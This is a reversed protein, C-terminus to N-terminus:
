HRTMSAAAMATDRARKGTEIYTKFRMLDEDLQHKPDRGLLRAVTHGLLNAPPRYSMRVHIRTGGYPTEEFQVTGTSHVVSDDSTRWAILENPIDATIEADWEVAVGAPGDVKWHYHTDDIKRVERVHSMFQPFNELNRWCSYTEDLDAYVHITKQVLVGDSQDARLGLLRSLPTNAVSRSLLAAGLAAMGIGGVSRRALGTALLGLGTMGALLRPAPAWNEQLYEFRPASRYHQGQLAPTSGPERHVRLENVVTRVGRVRNVRSLVHNLEEELIDGRLRAIGKSCAVEIAGPHSSLRGLEARIREEIVRDEPADGRFRSFSREYVGLARQRADRAAKGAFAESEHLLKTIRDRLLARRRRGSRPDLLYVTGAAIAATLM